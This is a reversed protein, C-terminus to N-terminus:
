NGEKKKLEPSESPMIVIAPIKDDREEQKPEEVSIKQLVPPRSKQARALVSLLINSDEKQDTDKDGEVAKIEPSGRAQQTVAADESLSEYGKAPPSTKFATEQLSKGDDTMALHDKSLEALVDSPSTHTDDLRKLDISPKTKIKEADEHQPKEKHKVNIHSPDGSHALKGDDTMSLHEKSLEALSHSPSRTDKPLKLDNSSKIKDKDENVEPDRKVTMESARTEVVETKQNPLLPDIQINPSRKGMEVPKSNGKDSSIEHSEMKIEKKLQSPQKVSSKEDIQEESVHDKDTKALTGTSLNKGESEKRDLSARDDRSVAKAEQENASKSFAPKDTESERFLLKISNQQNEVAGANASETVEKSGQDSRRSINPKDNAEALSSSYRELSVDKNIRTPKPPPCKESVNQFTTQDAFNLSSSEGLNPKKQDVILTETREERTNVETSKLGANTSENHVPKIPNPELSIKVWNEEFSRDKQLAPPLSIKRRQEASTADKTASRESKTEPQKQVESSM